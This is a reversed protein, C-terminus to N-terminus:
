PARRTPSGPSRNSGSCCSATPTWPRFRCNGRGGPEAPYIPARMGLYLESGDPSFEAGELDYGGPETPIFKDAAGKELGFKDGYFDSRGDIFGELLERRIQPAAM